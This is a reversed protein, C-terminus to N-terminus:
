PKYEPSLAEYYAEAEALILTRQTKPACHAQHALQGIKILLVLDIDTLPSGGNLWRVHMAALAPTAHSSEIHWTGTSSYHGVEIQKNDVSRRVLFQINM